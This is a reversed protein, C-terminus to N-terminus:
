INIAVFNGFLDLIHLVKHLYDSRCYREFTYIRFLFQLFVFLVVAHLFAPKADNIAIEIQSLRKFTVMPKRFAYPQM